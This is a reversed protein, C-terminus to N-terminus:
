SIVTPIVEYKNVYEIISNDTTIIPCNLMIASALILKDHIEHDILDDEIKILYELVEKEIPKIEINPSNMIPLSVEYYFKAAFEESNFWKDFIEIFVVSPISLKIEESQNNLAQQIIRLGKKSLLVPQKFVNDFFSIIANTDSVYLRQMSM